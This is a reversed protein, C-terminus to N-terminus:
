CFFFVGGGFCVATTRFRGEMEKLGNMCLGNVYSGVVCFGNTGLKRPKTGLSAGGVVVVSVVVVFVAGAADVAPCTPLQGHGCHVSTFSAVCNEQPAHPHGSSSSM